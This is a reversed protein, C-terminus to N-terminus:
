YSIIKHLPVDWPDVPVDQKQEAFALGVTFCPHAFLYSDYYGKGHGLRNNNEDFAVLPVAMVDFDGCFMEGKPEKIGFAGVTYETSRDVSVFFMDKGSVCPLCVTKKQSLLESIIFSTDPETETSMFLAVTRAARVEPLSLFTEAILRSKETKDTLGAILLRVRKRIETKTM